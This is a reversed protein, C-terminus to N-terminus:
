AAQGMSQEQLGYKAYLERERNLMTNFFSEYAAYDPNEIELAEMLAQMANDVGKKCKHVFDEDFELRGTVEYENLLDRAVGINLALKGAPSQMIQQAQIPHKTEAHGVCHFSEKSERHEPPISKPAYRRCAEFIHALSPRRKHERRLDTMANEMVSESFRALDDVFDNITEAEFEVAWYRKMPDIIHKVVRQIETQSPM